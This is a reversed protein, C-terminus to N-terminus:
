EKGVFLSAIDKLMLNIRIDVAPKRAVFVVAYNKFDVNGVVVRLRRKILNRVVAGGLKKTVMIGYVKTDNKYGKFKEVFMDYTVIYVVSHRFVTKQGNNM